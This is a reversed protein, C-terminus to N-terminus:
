DKCLVFHYILRSIKVLATIVEVFSQRSGWDPNELLDFLRSFFDPEVMRSRFDDVLDDTM